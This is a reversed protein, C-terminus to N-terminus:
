VRRRPKSVRITKFNRFRSPLICFSADHFSDWDRWTPLSTPACKRTSCHPCWLHFCPGRRTTTPTRPDADAVQRRPQGKEAHDDVYLLFWGHLDARRGGQGYIVVALEPDPQRLMDLVASVADGTDDEAIRWMLCSKDITIQGNTSELRKRMEEDRVNWNEGTYSYVTIETDEAELRAHGVYGLSM